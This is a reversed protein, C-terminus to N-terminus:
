KLRWSLVPRGGIPVYTFSLDDLRPTDLLSATMVDRRFVVHARFPGSPIRDLRWSQVAGTNGSRSAAERGGLYGTADGELLELELWYDLSPSLTWSVEELRSGSPLRLPASTWEPAQDDVPAEGYRTYANGRYYRGDAFRTAALGQVIANGPDRGFDWVAFEDFTADAGGGCCDWPVAVAMEHFRSGLVFRHPGGHISFAYCDAPAGTLDQCETGLNRASRPYVDESGRRAADIVLEGAAAGSGVGSTEFDWYFSMLRWARPAPVDSVAYEHERDDDEPTMRGNFPPQFSIEFDAAFVDGYWEGAGQFLLFQQTWPQNRLALLNGPPTSADYKARTAVFLMHGRRTQLRPPCLSPAKAFDYNPKVWFSLIGHRRPLNPDGLYAPERGRESYSGDPHLTNPRQRDLVSRALDVSSCNLAVDQLCREVGPGGAKDLDFGDDFRALCKMLGGAQAYTGDTETELTALQLSGDWPAPTISPGSGAYPEPYSQLSLGRDDPDALFAKGWTRSLGRSRGLYHESAPSRFATEDGALAPDGLDGAVFEGQTTLRLLSPGAIEVALEQRALLRGGPGLVCGQSSVRLAAMPRLSFETSYALLDSKDVLRWQSANPNCKNLDSNPNFNAKMLARCAEEADLGDRSRENLAVAAAWSTQAARLEDQAEEFAEILPPLAAEADRIAQRVAELQARAAETREEDGSAQADEYEWEACELEWSLDNNLHDQAQQLAAARATVEAQAAELAALAAALAASSGSAAAAAAARAVPFSLGDCLREWEQWTRIEGPFDLIQRVVEECDNPAGWDLRIEAKRLHGVCDKASEAYSISLPECTREGLSLGSLGATLAILASKHHRAWSLDVPARGVLRAGVREFDPPDRTPASTSDTRANGKGQRIDGWSGFEKNELAAMVAPRIVKLDVWAQLALYPRLLDLKAQSGGLALAQIQDLGRWGGRPRTDVLRWGDAEALIGRRPDTERDVAEALTGLMRRLVANYGLGAAQSPDGGNVFFGGGEVQLAYHSGDAASLGSLTATRPDPDQGLRARALVDEIGSRALLLARTQHIRQQSARREMRALTVFGVGLVALVGLVAIVVVLALGSPRRAM